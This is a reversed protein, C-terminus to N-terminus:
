KIARGVAMGFLGYLAKEALALPQDGVSPIAMAALVILLTVCIVLDKDDYDKM